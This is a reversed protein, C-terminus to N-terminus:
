LDSFKQAYAFGLKQTCVSKTHLRLLTEYMLGRSLYLQVSLFSSRSIWFSCLSNLIETCVIVMLAICHKLRQHKQERQELIWAVWVFSSQWIFFLWSSFMTTDERKWSHSSSNLLSGGISFLWHGQQTTHMTTPRSNPKPTRLPLWSSHSAAMDKTEWCCVLSNVQYYLIDNLFCCLLTLCEHHWLHTCYLYFTHSVKHFDRTFQVLGFFEQTM